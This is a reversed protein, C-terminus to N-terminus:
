QIKNMVGEGMPLPNPHPTEVLVNSIHNLVSETNVLVDNNWYRYVEYGLLGLYETREMDQEAQELHQGGDLEIVVMKELCVLDVIYEGIPYQRRFKHGHMQRNRLYRWLCKEADTQNQRLHRAMAVKNRM